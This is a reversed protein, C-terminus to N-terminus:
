ESHADDYVITHATDIGSISTSFMQQAVLRSRLRLNINDAFSVPLRRLMYSVTNPLADQLTHSTSYAPSCCKCIPIYFAPVPYPLDWVTDCSLCQVYQFQKDCWEEHPVAEIMDLVTDAAGLAYFPSGPKALTVLKAIRMVLTVQTGLAICRPVSQSSLNHEPSAM